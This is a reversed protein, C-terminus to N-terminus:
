KCVSVKCTFVNDKVPIKQTFNITFIGHSRSSAENMHTSGVTRTKNGHEILMLVDDYSSVILRTLDEVYPGLTPHERIRLGGIGDDYSPPNLLDRVQYFTLPDFNLRHFLPSPFPPSLSLSLSCVLFFAFAMCITQLLCLLHMHVKSLSFPERFCDMCVSVCLADVIRSFRASIRVRENYIEMYSVEMVFQTGDKTNEVKSFLDGCLRPILGRNEGAGGMM